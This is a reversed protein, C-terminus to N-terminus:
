ILAHILLRYTAEQPIYNSMRVGVEVIAEGFRRYLGPMPLYM